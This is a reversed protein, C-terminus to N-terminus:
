LNELRALEDKVSSSPPTEEPYCRGITNPIGKLASLRRDSQIGLDRCATDVLLDFMRDQDVCTHDMLTRIALGDILSMIKLTITEPPLTPAFDASAIGVQILDTFPRNWRRYIAKAYKRMQPDHHAVSWFEIWLSWRTEFTSWGSVQLRLLAFLQRVPDQETQVVHGWIELSLQLLAGFSEQILLDRHRFYHQILGLSVGAEEAVDKLRANAEGKRSIVDCAAAIIEQRRRRALDADLRSGNGVTRSAAM